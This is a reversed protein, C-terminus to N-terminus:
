KGPVGAEALVKDWRHTAKLVLELLERAAGHGGPRTSVVHAVARVEPVADLPCAALGARALPALDNLDDGMYAVSSPPLGFEACLEDFAPGKERRGQFVKALKLEAARVEVLKSTRATLLAVPLGVLRALVMAHGDKVDFRKVTEGADGYWLGGDTLVGDVDFVVLQIQAARELPTV